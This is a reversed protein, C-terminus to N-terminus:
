SSRVKEAAEAGKVPLGTPDLLGIQVLASAQDWYIHEHALKGDRFHAVVVIALTVKRGTPAVGPFIWDMATTHTFENIMEDVLLDDGITRSIPTIKWDPPVQNVFHHGYFQRLGERTAGGVMTPVHNVYADEVMTSVTKDADHDRFEYVLHEEWVDVMRQQEPTLQSM